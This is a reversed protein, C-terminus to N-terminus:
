LQGMLVHTQPIVRVNKLFKLGEAQWQLMEKASPPEAGGFPTVPQLILLITDDVGSIIRCAKEFEEKATDKTLVIKCYIDKGKATNLFDRHEAWYTKGNLESPLKIDMSIIDVCDVVQKLKEPLTGNTELFVPIDVHKALECIFEAHLLPEGGTISVAQHPVTDTFRKVEAAVAEATMPNSIEVYEHSGPVSEVICVDHKGTMHETDCYRCSINCGELRVFVQRCGAYKGEGQVSSFIEIVNEKVARDIRGILLLPAPLSGYVSM